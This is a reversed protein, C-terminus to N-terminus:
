QRNDTPNRDFSQRLTDPSAKDDDPYKLRYEQYIEDWTKQPRRSRSFKNRQERTMETKTKKKVKRDLEAVKRKLTDIAPQVDDISAIVTAEPDVKGGARTGGITWLQRTSFLRSRHWDKPPTETRSEGLLTRVYAFPRDVLTDFKRVCADIVNGSAHAEVHGDDLSLHEKRLLEHVAWESAARRHGNDLLHKILVPTTTFRQGSNARVSITDFLRPIERLAAEVEAGTPRDYNPERYDLM